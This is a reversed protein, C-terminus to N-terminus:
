ASKLRRTEILDALRPHNEILLRAYRSVYSNNLKFNSTPDSTQIQYQWRLVEALMKMGIRRRGRDAMDLAMRELHRYIWPNAEHFRRFRESLPEGALEAVDVFEAWDTLPLQQFMVIRGGPISSSM